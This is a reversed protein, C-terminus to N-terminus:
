RWAATQAPPVRIEYGNRAYVPVLEDRVMDIFPQHTRSLRYQASWRELGSNFIVCPRTAALFSQRLREQAPEDFLAMASSVTFGNAHPVGSWINFSNMGPITVLRDCRLSARSTIESFTQYQQVSLRVLRSNPLHLASPEAVENVAVVTTWAGACLVVFLIFGYFFRGSIAFNLGILRTASALEDLGNLTAAFAALVVISAALYSQTEPVPYMMLVGFMAVVPLLVATVSPFTKLAEGPRPVLMWLIGPALDSALRPAVVAVIIVAFGLGAQVRAPISKRGRKRDWVYLGASAVSGLVGLYEFLRFDPFPVARSFRLPQFIVGDLLGALSTGHHLVTIVTLSAISVFGILAWLSARWDLEVIANRRLRDLVAWVGFTWVVSQVLVDPAPFQRHMVLGPMAICLARVGADYWCPRLGRPLSATFVATLAASMFIGLNIKTLLMAGSAVGLTTFVIAHPIRKYLSAAVFVCAYLILILIQPHGPEWKLARLIVAVTLLTTLSWAISRQWLWVCAAWGSAVLVWMLVSLFRIHDHDVPWSALKLLTSHAVYYFPGYETYMGDYLAAGGMYQKLTLLMFGEDDYDSFHMGVQVLAYGFVLALGAAICVMLIAARVCTQFRRWWPNNTNFEAVRHDVM